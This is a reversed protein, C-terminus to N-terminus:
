SLRGQTVHILAVLGGIAIIWLVDVLIRNM